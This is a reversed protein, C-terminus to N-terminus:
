AVPSPYRRSRTVCADVFEAYTKAAREISFKEVVRRRARASRVAYDDGLSLVRGIAAALAAPDRPPVVEGTEGVVFAADGVDTTVCPVGYSM